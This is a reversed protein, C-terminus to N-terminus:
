GNAGKWYENLNEWTGLDLYNNGRVILKPYRNIIDGIETYRDFMGDLIMLEIDKGAFKLVGWFLESADGAQEAKVYFFPENVGNDSMQSLRDVKTTPLTKFVGCVLGKQELCNLFLNGQYISDPLGFLIQSDRSPLVYEYFDKLCGAFSPKTQKIHVYELGEYYKCIDDKFEEGHVFVILDVGAEKMKIVTHNIQTRGKQPLMEKSFPLGLRKGKGGVPIIGYIM